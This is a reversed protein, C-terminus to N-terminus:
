GEQEDAGYHYINWTITGDFLAVEEAKGREILYQIVQFADSDSIAPQISKIGNPSITHGRGHTIAGKLEDTNRCWVATNQYGPPPDIKDIRVSQGGIVVTPINEPSM